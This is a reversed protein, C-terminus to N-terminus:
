DIKTQKTSTRPFVVKFVRYLIILIGLILTITTLSNIRDFTSIGNPIDIRLNNEKNKQQIPHYFVTDKSFYNEFNNGISSFRSTDFPSKALIEHDKINCALFLKPLPNIITTYLSKSTTQNNTRNQNPLQYRSHLTLNFNQPENIPTDLKFLLEGGWNEIKYEPLELDQFGNNILLISNKPINQYKDFILSKNLHLYIFPNCNLVDDDNILQTSSEKNLLNINTNFIPHLGNKILNTNYEINELIRHRPKFHFMTKHINKENEDSSEATGDFIVRLGSLVIDDKSNSIKSDKLFIGIEKYETLKLKYSIEDTKYIQRISLQSENSDDYILDYTKNTFWYDKDSPAKILLPSPSSDYYYLSMVHNIYQEENIEIGILDNLIDKLEKFFEDNDDNNITNKPEVYINLGSTFEFPFFENRSDIIDNDFKSQIRLQRIHKLNKNFPITFKNEILLSNDSHLSELSLHTQNLHKIINDHNQEFNIVTSRQKIM